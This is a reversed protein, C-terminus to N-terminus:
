NIKNNPITFVFKSGTGPESEAWIEGGHKEVFEKCLILGLGTGKEKNTGPISKVKEVRFLNSLTEDDMGIGFDRVTVITCDKNHLNDKKRKIILEIKSNEMSYKIANSLLNRLITNMLNKDFFLVQLKDLNHEIIINKKDASVKVDQIANNVTDYLSYMMPLYDIKGKQISAWELLNELLQSTRVSASYTIDIIQKMEDEGLQGGNNKLIELMNRIGGVPNRLDHAIISFFKDKTENAEKLKMESDTLKDNLIVLKDAERAIDENLEKLELNSEELNELANNLELTRERVKDELEENLKRVKVESEKTKKLAEESRNFSKRYILFSNYSVTALFIFSMANDIFYDALDASSNTWKIDISLVFTLLVVINAATYFIIFHKRKSLLPVMALVGFLFSITDFRALYYTENSFIVFWVALSCAIMILHITIDIFGKKLILISLLIILFCIIEIILTTINLSNFLQIQVYATTLLLLFLTIVMAIGVRYIFLSKMQTMFDSNKYVNLFKPFSEKETNTSNKDSQLVKDM